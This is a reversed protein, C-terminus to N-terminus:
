TVHWLHWKFHNSTCSTGSFNLINSTNHIIHNIPTTTFKCINELLRKYLNLTDHPSSQNKHPSHWSRGLIMIYTICHIKLYIFYNQMVIQRLALLATIYKHTKVYMWFIHPLCWLTPFFTILHTVFISYLINDPCWQQM